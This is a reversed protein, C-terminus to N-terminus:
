LGKIEISSVFGEWYFQNLQITYNDIDIEENSIFENQGCSHFVTVLFQTSKKTVVPEIIDNTAEVEVVTNITDSTPYDVAVGNIFKVTRIFRTGIYEDFGDSNEIEEGTRRRRTVYQKIDNM